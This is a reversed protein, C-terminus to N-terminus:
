TPWHKDRSNKLFYQKQKFSDPPLGQHPIDTIQTRLKEEWMEVLEMSSLSKLREGRQIKGKIDM